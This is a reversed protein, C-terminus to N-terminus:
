SSPSWWWSSHGAAAELDARRRKSAVRALHERHADRAAKAAAVLPGLLDKALKSVGANLDEKRKAIKERDKEQLEADGEFFSAEDVTLFAGLDFTDACLDQQQLDAVLSKYQQDATALEERMNRVTDELKAVDDRWLLLKDVERDLTKELRAVAAFQQQVRQHLPTPPKPLEQAHLKKFEAEYKSATTMDGGKRALEALQKAETANLQSQAGVPLPPARAAPAELIGEETHLVLSCDLVVQSGADKAVGEVKLVVM